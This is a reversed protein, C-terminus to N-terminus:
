GQDESGVPYGQAHHDCAKRPHCVPQHGRVFWGLLSCYHNEEESLEKWKVSILATITSSNTCPREELLAKRAKQNYAHMEQNYKEKNKKVMEEYPARQKETMNKWEEGNIKAVELVNKIEALLAARRENSFIFFSSMPQKPKLPDKEKKTKKKNDNEAEQM